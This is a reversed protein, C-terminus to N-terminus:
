GSNKTEKYAEIEKPGITTTKNTVKQLMMNVENKMIRPEKHIQSNPYVNQQQLNQLNM